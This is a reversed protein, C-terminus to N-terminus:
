KGSNMCAMPALVLLPSKIPAHFDKAMAGCVLPPFFGRAMGESRLATAVALRAWRAAALAFFAVSLLPPVAIRPASITM